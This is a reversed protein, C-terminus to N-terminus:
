QRRLRVMIVPYLFCFNPLGESFSDPSTGRALHRATMTDSIRKGMPMAMMMVIAYMNTLDNGSWSPLREPAGRSRMAMTESPGSTHFMASRMACNTKESTSPGISPALKGLNPAVIAKM